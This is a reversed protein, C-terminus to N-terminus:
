ETAPIGLPLALSAPAVRAAGPQEDAVLNLLWSPGKVVLVGIMLELVGDSFRSLDFEIM